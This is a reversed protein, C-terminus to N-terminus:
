ISRGAFNHFFDGAMVSAALSWDIAHPLVKDGTKVVIDSGDASSVSKTTMMSTRTDAKSQDAIATADSMIEKPIGDEVAAEEPVGKLMETEAKNPSDTVSLEELLDHNHPFIFSTFVPLLFGSIICAGFRWAVAAEANVEEEEEHEEELFRHEDGHGGAFHATILALSEPLVLFVTTAMLAGCAFSPVVNHTFAVYYPSEMIDRKLVHKAFFEGSLFFVGILTVLNILLSAVIVEGWPKSTTGDGELFLEEEEAGHEDEHGHEDEDAHEDEEAHVDSHEEGDEEHHETENSHTTVGEEQEEEEEHHETENHDLVLDTGNTTEQLWRHQQQEQLVEQKDHAVAISSKSVAISLAVLFLQTRFMIRHIRGPITAHSTRRPM